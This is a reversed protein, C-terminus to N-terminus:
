TGRKTMADCMPLLEDLKAIIRQQEALPPLSILIRAVESGSVEKFTTGSANGDIEPVKQMLAFYIYINTRELFPVVSKFGQNTSIDNAAIALYGIPARSSFLVTGKPLLQASSKKLGEETINRSGHSVHMTKIDRMDAPTLWPITGGNWYESHDTKPTGGGVINGITGLRAWEWGDPIDFPIEDDICAEEGSRIEYWSGDRRYISSLNKEAKIKGEKILKDKEVAIKNLLEDATGEEARQEVLRGQVAEQLISNKLDQATM